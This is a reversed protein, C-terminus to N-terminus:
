IQMPFIFIKSFIDAFDNPNMEYPDYVHLSWKLSIQGIVTQDQLELDFNAHGEQSVDDDGGEPKM